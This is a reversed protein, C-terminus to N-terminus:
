YGARGIFRLRREQRASLATREIKRNVDSLPMRAQTIGWTLCDLTDKMGDPFNIFEDILQDQNMRVFLQGNEAVSGVTTRIRVNKSVKTGKPLEQIPFSCNNQRCVMKFITIFQAHAGFSEVYITRFYGRWSQAMEMLKTAIQIEPNEGKGRGAWVDLTFFKEDQAMLVMIANNSLRVSRKKIEARNDDDLDGSAATDVLIIVDGESVMYDIPKAGKLPNEIGTRCYYGRQKDELLKFYNLKDKKFELSGPHIEKNLINANYMLWNRERLKRLEDQDYITPFNLRGDDEIPSKWYVQYEGSSIIPKYFDNGPWRTGYMREIGNKPEVFLSREYDHWTLANDRNLESFMDEVGVLDDNIQIDTHISESRAGVGVTVISPTSRIMTSNPMQMELQNWPKHKDNPKICEPWLFNMLVNAGGLHQEIEGLMREAHRAIQNAILITRNPNNILLWICFAVTGITTKYVGRPLLVLGKKISLDQIFDCIPKHSAKELKGYQLVAKALFYLSRRSLDRFAARVDKDTRVDSVSISGHESLSWVENRVSDSVPELRLDSM